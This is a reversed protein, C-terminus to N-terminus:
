KSKSIELIEKIYKSTKTDINRKLERLLDDREKSSLDSLKSKWPLNKSECFRSAEVISNVAVPKKGSLDILDYNFQACAYIDSTIGLVHDRYFIFSGEEPYVINKGGNHDSMWVGAPKIIIISDYGPIKHKVRSTFESIAEGKKMKFNDFITFSKKPYSKRFKKLSEQGLYTALNWGDVNYTYRSVMRNIFLIRNDITNLVAVKKVRAFEKPTIGPTICGSISFVTLLLVLNKKM